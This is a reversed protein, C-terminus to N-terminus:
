RSGDFARVHGGLYLGVSRTERLRLDQGTFAGVTLWPTAWLEARARVELSAGVDRATASTECTGYQSAVTADIVRVGAFGEAALTVPGLHARVGAIAGTAVYMRLGPRASATTGGTDITMALAADDASVGGITLEAGGYWRRGAVARLDAGIVTADARASPRGRMTFRYSGQDGHDVTGSFALRGTAITRVSTGVEITVRPLAAPIAWDGFGSCQRRGLVDSTEVCAVPTSSSDSSSSDSSSSDSSSSSSSSGGSDGDGHCSGAQARVEAGLLAALVAIARTV